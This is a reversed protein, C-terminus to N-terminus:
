TRALLSPSDACRRCFWHMAYVAAARRPTALAFFNRSTPSWAATLGKNLREVVKPGTTLGLTGISLDFRTLLACRTGSM